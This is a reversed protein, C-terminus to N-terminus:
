LDKYNGIFKNNNENTFKCLCTYLGYSYSEYVRQSILNEKLFKAAKTAVNQKNNGIWFLSIYFFDKYLCQRKLM